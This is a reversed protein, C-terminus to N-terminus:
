PVIASLPLEIESDASAPMGPVMAAGAAHVTVIIRDDNSLRGTALPVEPQGAQTLVGVLGDADSALIVALAPTPVPAVAGDTRACSGAPAALSGEGTRMGPTLSVRLGTITAQTDCRIQLGPLVADVLPWSVTGDVKDLEARNARPPLPVAVRGALDTGPGTLRWNVVVTMRRLSELASTEWAVRHAGDLQAAGTWLTGSVRDAMAGLGAQQAAFRAPMYVVLSVAFAAIALLIVSSWLAM